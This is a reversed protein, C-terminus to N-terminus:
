TCAMQGGMVDGGVSSTKKRQENRIGNNIRNIRNDFRIICQKTTSNRKTLIQQFSHSRMVAHQRMKSEKKRGGGKTKDHRAQATNRLWPPLKTNKDQISTMM